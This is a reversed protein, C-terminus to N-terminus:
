ALVLEGTAGSWSSITAFPTPVTITGGSQTYTTGNLIIKTTLGDAGKAGNTGNTGAAGPAGKLNKFDFAFTRASASGGLTVGVSPTGVNADITATTSTITANTGPDGKPGTGGADGKDGKPVTFSLTALNGDRNVTVAASTGAAGTTATAAITTLIDSNVIDGTVTLNGYITTDNFKPM